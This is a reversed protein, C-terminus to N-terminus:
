DNFIGLCCYMVGAMGDRYRDYGHSGYICMCRYDLTMSGNGSDNGNGNGAGQLFDCNMKVYWYLLFWDESGEGLGDGADEPEDIM